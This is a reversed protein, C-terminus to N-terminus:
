KEPVVSVDDILADSANQCVFRIGNQADPRTEGTGSFLQWDDTLDCEVLGVSPHQVRTYNHKARYDTTDTIAAQM